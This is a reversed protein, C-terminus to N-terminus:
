EESWKRRKMNYSFYATDKIDRDNLCDKIFQKNGKWERGESQQIEDMPISKIKKSKFLLSFMPRPHPDGETPLPDIQGVLDWNKFIEKTHELHPHPRWHVNNRDENVSVVLCYCTKTELHDLAYLFDPILLHYHFNALLSVDAVPINFDFGVEIKKELIKYDDDGRYMKAARNDSKNKEIGIVNKFEKRALKLYMGANSGYEIFTDGKPLLPKIYNDWKGENCFKSGKRVADGYDVGDIIINQHVRM